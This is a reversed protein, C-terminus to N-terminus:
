HLRGEMHIPISADWWNQPADDETDFERSGEEWTIGSPCGPKPNLKAKTGIPRTNASIQECWQGKVLFSKDEEFSSM